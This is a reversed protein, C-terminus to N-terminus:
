ALLRKIQRKIGRLNLNRKLRKPYSSYFRYLKSCIKRDPLLRELKWRVGTIHDRQKFSATMRRGKGAKYQNTGSGDNGTNKVFSKTPYVTYKGLLSQTLCWRIAWSDTIGLKQDKLIRTLDRGGREFSKRRAKDSMVSDYQTMDWDASRWRDVWTGWGYSCGRYYYYIDHEYELLIPLYETYGTVSWVNDEDKYYELAEDMFRLFDGSVTLDDEVVIVRGYREIVETVGQIVNEALGFNVDRTIYEINRFADSDKIGELYSRVEDVAKKDRENEPGDAYIFLDHEEHGYAKSLSDFCAQVKDRRNYAFLIIPADM